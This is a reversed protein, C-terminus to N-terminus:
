MQVHTALFYQGSPTILLAQTQVVFFDRTKDHLSALFEGLKTMIESVDPDCTRGPTWVTYENEEYCWFFPRGDPDSVALVDMEYEEMKEYIMNVQQYEVSTGPIYMNQLPHHPQHPQPPPSMISIWNQKNLCNLGLFVFIEFCVFNVSSSRILIIRNQRFYNRVERVRSM